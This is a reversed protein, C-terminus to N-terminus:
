LEDSEGEAKCIQNFKLFSYIGLFTVISGLLYGEEFM